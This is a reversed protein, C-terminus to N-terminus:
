VLVQSVSGSFAMMSLRFDALIAVTIAAPLPLEVLASLEGPQMEEATLTPEVVLLSTTDLKELTAEKRDSRAGPLEMVDEYGPAWYATALPVETAVGCTV